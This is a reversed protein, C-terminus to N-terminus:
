CNKLLRFATLKIMKLFHVLLEVHAQISHFSTDIKEFKASLLPSMLIEYDDENSSKEISM